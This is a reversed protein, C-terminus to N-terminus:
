VATSHLQLHVQRQDCRPAEGAGDMIWALHHDSSTDGEGGGGGGGGVCLCM